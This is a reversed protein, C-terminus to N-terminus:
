CDSFAAPTSDYTICPFIRRVAGDMILWDICVYRSGESKSIPPITIYLINTMM